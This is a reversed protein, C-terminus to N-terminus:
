RLAPHLVWEAEPIMEAPGRAVPLDGPMDAPIDPGPAPEPPFGASSGPLVAYIAPYQRPAVAPCPSADGAARMRGTLAPAGHARRWDGPEALLSFVSIEDPISM